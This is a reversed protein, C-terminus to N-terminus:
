SVGEHKCHPLRNICQVGKRAKESRCKKRYERKLYKQDTPNAAVSSRAEPDPNARLYTPFTSFQTQAAIHQKDLM